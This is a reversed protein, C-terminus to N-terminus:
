RPDKGIVAKGAHIDDMAKGIAVPDNPDIIRKSRDGVLKRGGQSGGGGSAEFLHPADRSALHGIHETLSLPEGNSGFQNDRPAPRGDDGVMFSSQVRHLLDPIAGQRVRIGARDIAATVEDRLTAQHVQKRYRDADATAADRAHILAKREDQYGETVTRMRRQVVDDIKGEEVLKREEDGEMQQLANIAKKHREPDIGDFQQLRQDREELQKLLENNKKMVEVNTSRFERIRSNEDTDLVLGTGGPADVYYERVAEPVDELKEIVSPLSM